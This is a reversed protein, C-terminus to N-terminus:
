LAWRSCRLLLKASYFTRLRGSRGLRASIPSRPEPLQGPAQAWRGGLVRLTWALAAGLSAPTPHHFGAHTPSHPAPPHARLWPGVAPPTACRSGVRQAPGWDRHTGGGPCRGRLRAGACRPTLPTLGPSSPPRGARGPSRHRHATRTHQRQQRDTQARHAERSAQQPAADEGLTIGARPHPGKSAADQLGRHGQQTTVTSSPRAPPTSCANGGAPCPCHGAPLPDYDLLVQLGGSCLPVTKRPHPTSFNTPPPQLSLLLRPAPARGHTGPVIERHHIGWASALAKSRGPAWSRAPAAPSGGTGAGRQEGTGLGQHLSM